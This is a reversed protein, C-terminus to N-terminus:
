APDERCDNTATQGIETGDFEPPLCEQPFPCAPPDFRVDWDWESPDTNTCIWHCEDATM